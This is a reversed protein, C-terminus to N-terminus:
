ENQFVGECSKGSPQRILCLDGHEASYSKRTCKSCVRYGNIYNNTNIGSAKIYESKSMILYETNEVESDWKRMLKVNSIHKVMSDFRGFYSKPSLSIKANGEKDKGTVEHQVVWQTGDNSIHHIGIRKIKMIDGLVFFGRLYLSPQSHWHPGYVCMSGKDLLTIIIVTKTLYGPSEDGPKIFM